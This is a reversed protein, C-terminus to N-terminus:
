KVAKKLFPILSLSVVQTILLIFGGIVQERQPPFPLLAEIIDDELISVDIGTPLCVALSSKILDIDTYISYFIDKSLSLVVVLPLFLLVFGIYFSRRSRNTLQNLEKVPPFIASWFLLAVIFMAFIYFNHLFIDIRVYDFVSPIHYIIFLLHFTILSGTPNMVMRLVKKLFPISFAMKLFEAKLGIVLLPASLFFLMIMQIMHARFQIRGLLNLPSGLAFFYIFLGLVFLGAKLKTDTSSKPLLLFYLITTILVFYLVGFNWKEHYSLSGLIDQIIDM